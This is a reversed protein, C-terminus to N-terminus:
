AANRLIRFRKGGPIPSPQRHVKRTRSRRRRWGFEHRAAFRVNIVLLEFRLARTKAVLANRVALSRYGEATM